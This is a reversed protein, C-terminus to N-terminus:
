NTNIISKKNIINKELSPASIDLNLNKDFDVKRVGTFFYLIVCLVVGLLASILYLGNITFIVALPGVIISGIPSILMSFTADISSVRGLKEHPINTQLITQYITNIIPLGIGILFLASFIFGFFRYPAFALMGYGVMLIAVTGFFWDMKHNWHKKISTIVAGVVIGGQIGASILAYEFVTASHINHAYYSSLVNLPQILFNGLMSLILLVIMGPTTTLTHFGDKLEKTFAEKELDEDNEKEVRISPISIFVLPIFALVFTIVDVWLAQEVSLFVLLLAAFMPAALQVFGSFLFGLGNIRSLKEKPVMTPIIANVTPQHFAQFVSRLAMITFIFWLEKYGMTMFIILVLTALAQLFDVTMILKKRNLRDSFVGAIPAALVFPLIFSLSAFSLVIPNNTEVTLWWILVFIAVQSGFLSFIQGIWFYIYDKFSKKTPIIEM